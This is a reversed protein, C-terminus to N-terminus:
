TRHFWAMTSNLQWHRRELKADLIDEVEYVTSEAAIHKFLETTLNLSSDYYFQLRQSRSALKHLAASAIQVIM